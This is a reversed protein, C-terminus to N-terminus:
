RNHWGVVVLRTSPDESTEFVPLLAASSSSCSTGDLCRGRELMAAVDRGRNALVQSRVDEFVGFSAHITGM